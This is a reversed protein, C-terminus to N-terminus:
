LLRIVKAVIIVNKVFRGGHLTAAKKKLNIRNEFPKNGEKSILFLYYQIWQFASNALSALELIFRSSDSCLFIIM